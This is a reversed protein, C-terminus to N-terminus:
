REFARNFEREALDDVRRWPEWAIAKDAKFRAHVYYFRGALLKTIAAAAVADDFCAIKVSPHKIDSRDARLEIQM